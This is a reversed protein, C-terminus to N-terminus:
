SSAEPRERVKWCYQAHPTAFPELKAAHGLGCGPMCAHAKDLACRPSDNSAVPFVGLAAGLHHM